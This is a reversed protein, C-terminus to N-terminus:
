AVDTELSTRGRAAIAKGTGRATVAATDETALFALPASAGAVVGAEPATPPIRARARLVVGARAEVTWTPVNPRPCSREGSDAPETSVPEMGAVRFRIADIPAADGSGTPPGEESVPLWGTSARPPRIADGSWRAM